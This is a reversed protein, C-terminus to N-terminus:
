SARRCEQKVLALGADHEKRLFTINRRSSLSSDSLVIFDREDNM